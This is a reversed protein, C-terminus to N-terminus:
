NIGGVNISFTNLMKGFDKLMACKVPDTVIIRYFIFNGERDEKFAQLIEVELEMVDSTVKIIQQEVEKPMNLEFIMGGADAPRIRYEFKNRKM